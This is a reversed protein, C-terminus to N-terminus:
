ANGFISVWADYHRPGAWGRVRPFLWEAPADALRFGRGDDVIPDGVMTLAHHLASSLLLYQPISEAVVEFSWEGVGHAAQLVPCAPDQLDVVIPDAGEDAVLLTDAPWDSVLGGDADVQYGIPTRTLDSAAWFAVPNGVRELTLTARPAHASVYRRLPEPFRRGYASELRALHEPSGERFPLDGVWFSQIAALAHDFTEPPSFTSRSPPV